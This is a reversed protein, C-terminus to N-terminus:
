IRTIPLPIFSRIQIYPSSASLLKDSGQMIQHFYYLRKNLLKIEKMPIKQNFSKLQIQNKFLKMKQSPILSIACTNCTYHLNSRQTHSVKLTKTLNNLEQRGADLYSHWITTTDIVINMTRKM